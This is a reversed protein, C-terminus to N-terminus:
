TPGLCVKEEVAARIQEIWSTAPYDANKDVGKRRLVENWLHISYADPLPKEPLFPLQWKSWHHPYFTKTPLIYQDLGFQSIVRPLLAPGSECFRVGRGMAKAEAVRTATFAAGAPVKMIGNYVRGGGANGFVYPAEFDWPKLCIVDADVWWGGYRSLYHYRWLNAFGGYGGGEHAFAGKREALRDYRFIASRPLIEAADFVEVGDPVSPPADYMYLRVPHGHHVFSQFSLLELRTLEGIWLTTVPELM